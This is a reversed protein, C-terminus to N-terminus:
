PAAKRRTSAACQRNPQRAIGDAAVRRGSRRVHELAFGLDIKRAIANPVWSSRSPRSASTCSGGARAQARDVAREEAKALALLQNTM